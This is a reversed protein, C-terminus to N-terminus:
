RATLAQEASDYVRLVQDLGLVTLLKRTHVSPHLLAVTGGTTQAHRHAKVLVGLGTSDIFTVEALDLLVPGPGALGELLAAEVSGATSVDLEGVAAVYVHDERVDVEVRLLM